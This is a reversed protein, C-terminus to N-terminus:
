NQVTFLRNSTLKTAGSWIDWLAISHFFTSWTSLNLTYGHLDNNYYHWVPWSPMGRRSNQYLSINSFSLLSCIDEDIDEQLPSHSLIWETLAPKPEQSNRKVLQRTKPFNHSASAKGEWLHLNSCPCWKLCLATCLAAETRLGTGRQLCFCGKCPEQSLQYAQALIGCWSRWQDAHHCDFGCAECLFFRNTVKDSNHCFSLSLLLKHFSPKFFSPLSVNSVVVWWPLSPKTAPVHSAPWM